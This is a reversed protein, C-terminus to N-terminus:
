GRAKENLKDAAKFKVSHVPPYTQIIGTRPDPCRRAPRTHVYFRGFRPLQVEGTKELADAICDQITELMTLAEVRKVGSRAVIMELLDSRNM